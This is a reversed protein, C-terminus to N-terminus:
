QSVDTHLDRSPRTWSGHFSRRAKSAEHPLRWARAIAEDTMEDGPSRPKPAQKKEALRSDARGNWVRINTTAPSFDRGRREPGAGSHDPDPHGRLNLRFFSLPGIARGSNEM